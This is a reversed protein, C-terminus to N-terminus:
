AANRLELAHLVEKMAENFRQLSYKDLVLNKANYILSNYKERNLLTSYKFSFERATKFLLLDTDDALDLGEAGAPTSLVPRDASAAELIKIRTGGGALLPVIAAKCKKYYEKIDPVDAHLEIGDRSECIRKIESNPSRGVVLLRADSYRKKFDPFVSEIFWKLGVSNPGYGLTGVFLLINENKFGDEFDYGDFSKSEYINPIVFANSEQPNAILRARDRESCFLSAGFALCKKEYNVLLKKNLDVIIKKYIGNISGFMSEYLSHSMIDDFDVITRLKYKSPLDLLISTNHIYRVLIYDYNNSEIGSLLLQKTDKTFEYVPVPIGKVFRVGRKMFGKPIDEVKLVYENSFTSHETRARSVRSYAIDLTGYRQFFRVFNMTRMPSGHNEPLPYRGCILLTKKM